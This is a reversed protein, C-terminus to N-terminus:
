QQHNEDQKTVTAIGILTIGLTFALMWVGEIAQPNSFISLVSILWLFASIGFATREKSNM